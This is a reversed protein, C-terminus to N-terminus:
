GKMTGENKLKWEALLNHNFLLAGAKNEKKMTYSDCM